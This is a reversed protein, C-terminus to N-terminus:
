KKTKVERKTTGYRLLWEDKFSDFRNERIAKKCDDLMCQIFCINHLSAITLGVKEDVDFLHCLYSKSINKTEDCFYESDISSFDNLYKNKTIKIPGDRTFITGHRANETPFISDFIDVGLGVCEIIHEPSGLGMFYLPKDRPLNDVTVKVSSFQESDNEGLALGGLAFGDFPLSGIQKASEARLDLFTGGQVIGFLKQSKDKHSNICRQAWEYTRKVTGQIYERDKGYHPVDDLAMIVDAGIRQQVKMSDEPTFMQKAKTYPDTFVVGEDTLENVFYESLIQFGGSDTFIGGHWNMYKHIGGFDHVLLDGPKLSILFANSIFCKTNTQEIQKTTMYKFGTKTAIPMFFPTELTAKRLKLEGIRANGDTHKIKFTM